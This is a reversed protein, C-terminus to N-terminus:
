LYLTKLIAINFSRVAMRAHFILNIPLSCIMLLILKFSKGNLNNKMSIHFEKMM